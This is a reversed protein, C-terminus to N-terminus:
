EKEQHLGKSPLLHSLPVAATGPDWNDCVFESGWSTSFGYINYIRSTGCFHDKLPKKARMSRKQPNQVAVGQNVRLKFPPQRVYM